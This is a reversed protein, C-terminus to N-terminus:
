KGSARTTARERDRRTSDSKHVHPIKTVVGDAAYRDAVLLDFAHVGGEIGSYRGPTYARSATGQQQLACVEWDQRNTLDWFEIADAPDFDPRAIQDPAFFWECAISTRDPALPVLRHTMLYDPHLSILLNPWVVFYYVKKIDEDTMGALMDRGHGRMVGDMSLTEHDGVVVMWSGNWPGRSPIWEGLNYPTIRNLQPHVGPCHYCEEYNEIIAKWNARVDYDIQKVRRLGGLDFRAFWDPLDDLFEDLRQGDDVLNLFVHGQWTALKVPVLGYETYDFDELIDTHRPRHLKGDLDYVWAHYSCQFRVMTGSPETVLTAGRHRCVNYFARLEGDKGRVVILNEGAIQTLFYAGPEAADEERGVCVWGRAFWAEQEYELIAPDHFVRPPLLSAAATPRRVAAVERAAVPSHPVSGNGIRVPTAM